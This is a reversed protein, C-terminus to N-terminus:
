HVWLCPSSLIHIVSYIGRLLYATPYSYNVGGLEVNLASRSFTIFRSFYSSFTLFILSFTLFILSFTIFVCGSSADLFFESGARNM